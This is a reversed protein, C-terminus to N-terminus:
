GGLMKQANALLVAETQRLAETPSFQLVVTGAAYAPVHGPGVYFADGEAFTEERDAFRYTQRGKLVVGWHPCQCADGPLGVMMAAGDLDVAFSTVNVTYGGDFDQHRDEVPGMRMVEGGDKAMKPMTGRRREHKALQEASMVEIAVFPEDREVWADHGPPITYSQGPEITLESGDDLRITASGSVAYGVHSLQCSKTGV